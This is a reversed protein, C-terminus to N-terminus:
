RRSSSSEPNRDRCASSSSRVLARSAAADGGVGRFTIPGAHQQRLARMLTAAHMDGSVEGAIIMVSKRSM